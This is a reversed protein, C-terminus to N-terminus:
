AHVALLEPNTGHPRLKSCGSTTYFYNTTGSEPTIASTLRSLMDYGYTRTQSGQVVGTLNNLVDYSCCTNVNQRLRRQPLKQM